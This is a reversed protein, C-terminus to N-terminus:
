HEMLQCVYYMCLHMHTCVMGPPAGLMRGAAAFLLTVDDAARLKGLTNASAVRSVCESISHWVPHEPEGAITANILGDADVLVDALMAVASACATPSSSTEQLMSFVAHTVTDVAHPRLGASAAVEQAMPVYHQQYLTKVDHDTLDINVEPWGLLPARESATCM